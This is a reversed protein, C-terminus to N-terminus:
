MIVTLLTMPWLPSCLADTGSSCAIAYEAGTYDACKKELEGVEPGGIYMGHELVQAIANDIEPKLDQYQKKLNCFQM